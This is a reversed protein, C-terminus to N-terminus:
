RRVGFHEPDAGAPVVDPAKERLQSYTRLASAEQLEELHEFFGNLYIRMETRATSSLNRQKRIVNVLEDQKEEFRALTAEILSDKVQFGLFVRDAITKQGLEVSPIAYGAAVLGSFDFDYAIPIYKGTREDQFLKLNRVMPMNFDANGIMYQFVAHVNEAQPDFLDPQVALCDECEKVGLREELQRDSEILFAQRRITSLKGASDVYRVRLLHVRYSNPTIVQYMEYATYEKLLATEAQYRADECHTVLKYKDFDALGAARLQSKSFNLKLPVFDCTRRRYKGRTKVEIEWSEMQGEKNSLLIDADQYTPEALRDALLQELDTTIVAEDFGNEIMYDFISLNEAEQANGSVPTMGSLVLLFLLKAFSQMITKM